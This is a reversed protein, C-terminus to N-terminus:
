SMTTVRLVASKGASTFVKLGQLREYTKRKESDNEHLDPHLM